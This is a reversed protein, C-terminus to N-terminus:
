WEDIGIQFNVITWFWESGICIPKTQNPWKQPKTETQVPELGFWPLVLVVKSIDEQSKKEVKNEIHILTGM